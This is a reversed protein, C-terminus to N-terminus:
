QSLLECLAINSEVVRNITFEGSLEASPFDFSVQGQACDTFELIMTGYDTEQFPIPNPQNFVEGSTLEM